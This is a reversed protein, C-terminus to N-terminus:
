IKKLEYFYRPYLSGAQFVSEKKSLVKFKNEFWLDLQKQNPYDLFINQKIQAPRVKKYIAASNNTPYEEIELLFISDKKLMDYVKDIFYKQSDIFYHFTSFCIIFDFDIFSDIKLIDNQIFTIRDSKFHEINLANAIEIFKESLDVGIMKKPNKNLLRFLFYGANCGIDLIIKDTLDYSDLNSLKFKLTSNSDRKTDDLFDFTQYHSKELIKILKNNM